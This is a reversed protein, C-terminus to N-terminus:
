KRAGMNKGGEREKAAKQTRQPSLKNTGLEKQRLIKRDMEAGGGAQRLAEVSWRELAAVANQFGMCPSPLFLEM